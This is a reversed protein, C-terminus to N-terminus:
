VRTKKSMWLLTCGKSWCSSQTRDVMEFGNKEYLNIAATFEEHVQLNTRSTATGDPSFGEEAKDLLNSALGKSRYEPRLLLYTINRKWLTPEDDFGALGNINVSVCGAPESDVTMVWMKTIEDCDGGSNYRGDGEGLSNVFDMHKQISAGLMSTGEESLGLKERYFTEHEDIIWASDVDNKFPRFAITSMTNPLPVIQEVDGLIYLVPRPVFASCIRQIWQGCSNSHRKPPPSPTRSPVLSGKDSTKRILMGVHM